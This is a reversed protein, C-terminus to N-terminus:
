ELYVLIQAIQEDTLSPFPPQLSQNAEYIALARPERELILRPASRIWAFVWEEQGEYKTLVKGLAPGILVRDRAHCAACHQEFWSKGQSPSPNDKAAKLAALVAPRLAALETEIIRLDPTSNELVSAPVPKFQGDAQIALYHTSDKTLTWDQYGVYDGEEFRGEGHYERRNIKLVPHPKVMMLEHDNQYKLAKEPIEILAYGIMWDLRKGDPGVTWIPQSELPTGEGYYSSDAIVLLVSDNIYVLERIDNIQRPEFEPDAEYTTFNVVRPVFNTLRYLAQEDWDPLSKPHTKVWNILDQFTKPPPSLSIGWFLILGSLLYKM